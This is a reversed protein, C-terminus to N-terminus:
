NVKLYDRWSMCKTQNNEVDDFLIIVDVKPISGKEGGLSEFLQECEHKATIHLSRTADCVIIMDDLLNPRVKYQRLKKKILEVNDVFAKELQVDANNQRCYYIGRTSSSPIVEFGSLRFSRLKPSSTGEFHIVDAMRGAQRQVAQTLETIEIGVRKDNIFLIFDPTEGKKILTKEDIHNCCMYVFLIRYENRCKLWDNNKPTILRHLEAGLEHWETKSFYMDWMVLLRMMTAEYKVIKGNFMVERYGDFFSHPEKNNVYMRQSDSFMKYALEKISNM